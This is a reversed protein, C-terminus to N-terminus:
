INGVKKDLVQKTLNVLIHLRKKVLMMLSDSLFSKHESLEKLIVQLLDENVENTAQNLSLLWTQPMTMLDELLSTHSFQNDLNSNRRYSAMSQNFKVDINKSIDIVVYFTFISGKGLASEVKIEGGMMRVFKRNIALGLGTEQSSNRGADAQTFADFFADLEDSSIDCGTDEVQFFLHPFPSFDVNEKKEEPFSVRLTVNGKPTFKVANGILNSLCRCLKKGDTYIYRPVDPAVVFDLEVDTQKLEFLFMEELNSLFDYLDLCNDDLDIAGAEIKSLELVHNVLELLYKTNRNIININEQQKGNLLSNDRMLKSFGIIVNLPIQLEHSM